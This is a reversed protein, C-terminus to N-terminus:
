VFDDMIRLVSLLMFHRADIAPFKRRTPSTAMGSKHQYSGRDMDVGAIIKLILWFNRRRKSRGRATSDDHCCGMDIEAFEESLM